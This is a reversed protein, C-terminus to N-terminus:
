EKMIRFNAMAGDATIVRLTYMGRTVAILNIRFNNEGEGLKGRYNGVMRGTVDLLTAQLNQPKSSHIDIYTESNVLTPQLGKIVTINDGMVLLVTRSYSIKGAKDVMLLRYYHAGPMLNTHMYSSADPNGNAQGTLKEFHRGNESHQLETYAIDSSTSFKWQLLSANEKIIGTFSLLQVPLITSSYYGFTYQGSNGLLQRSYVFNNNQWYSTENNGFGGSGTYSWNNAGDNIVMAVNCLDCPNIGNSWDTTATGAALANPNKYYLSVLADSGYNKNVAWYENAQIANLNPALTNVVNLNPHYWVTYSSPATSVPTVAGERLFGNKGVPFKYTATSNTLRTLPGEIHANNKGASISGSATVILMAANSSIINGNNLNLNGNVTANGLLTKSGGGNVGLGTYTFGPIIQDDGAFTVIGNLTYRTADMNIISGYIGLTRGAELILTATGQVDIDKTLADCSGSIVPQNPTGGPIITHKYVDPIIGCAWNAANCWDSSVSGTWIATNASIGSNVTVTVKFPTGACGALSPTVTYTATVPVLPSSTNTITGSVGPQNTGGAIGSIFTGTPPEWSYSTGVPIANTGTFPQQSPMSFPVDSCISFSQNAVSPTPNINVTTTFAAGTCIGASPIVTYTAVAQTGMSNNLTGHIGTGTGSVGGSFGSGTPPLSWTYITEPVVPVTNGGGNVPNIEFGSGSCVTASQDAVVPMPDVTILVTQPSGSCSGSANPLSPTVTYTIVQSSNSGNLLTNSLTTAGQPSTSEGSTNPNDTAVWSYNTGSGMNNTLPISVTSGSCITAAAPSTMEPTPNVVVTVPTRGSSKCGSAPYISKAYYTTTTLPNVTFPEGSLIPLSNISSGGSATEYWYVGGGNITGIINAGSGACIAAPSSLTSTPASPLTNPTISVIGSVLETCNGPATATVRYDAVTINGEFTITAGNGTIPDVSSIDKFSGSSNRQLRYVVGTYSAVVSIDVGSGGTCEGIISSTNTGSSGAVFMAPSTNSCDGSYVIRRFWGDSNTNYTLTSKTAGPINQFNNNGPSSVQWQYTYTGNGGLAKPTAITVQKPLGCFAIESVQSATITNNSIPPNVQVNFPMSSSCGNNTATAIFEATEFELTTNILNGSISSGNGKDPMGTLKGTTLDGKNRAWSFSTGAMGNPNTINVPTFASGSCIIQTASASVSVTPTPKVTVVVNYTAANSCNVGNNQASLSYVYTVNVPSNTTNVLTESINGAGNAASNSIGPVKARNWSFTTTVGSVSSGPTYEFVSGSCVSRSLDSNLEPTPNVTMTFSRSMGSCNAGSNYVPTVTVTGSIPATTTNTATFSAINGIGNAPLGMSTNNNSWTYATANGSFNVVSSNKTNCVTLNAIENVMPAPNVVVPVLFPSGTCGNFTPTVQFGVTAPVNLSSTFSGAIDGTGSFPLIGGGGTIGQINDRTWSFTTGNLNSTLAITNLSAGSCITQSSPTAIVEPKPKVVISTSNGTFGSSRMLGDAGKVSVITYHTTNTVPSSFVVFPTGSVVGSTTRDAVGDNYVVVYPGTGESATWTLMGAGSGCFPGNSILSGQPTQASLLMPLMLCAMFLIVPVFHGSNPLNKRMSM